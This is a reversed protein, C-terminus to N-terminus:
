TRSARLQRAGANQSAVVFLHGDPDHSALVADAPLARGLLARRILGYALSGRPEGHGRIFTHGSRQWRRRIESTRQRLAADSIGLLWLIEARTHGTLALLATTRLGPPLSAVFDDPEAAAADLEGANDIAFHTERQRRRAASRADHLARNRIVGGLWRRNESRTMDGREAEVAVLLATQLLDDAEESRRSQRRAYRLLRLYTQRDM